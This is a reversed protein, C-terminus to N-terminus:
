KWLWGMLPEQGGNKLEFAVEIAKRM